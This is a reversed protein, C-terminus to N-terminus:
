VLRDIEVADGFLVGRERLFLLLLAKRGLGLLHVTGRVRRELARQLLVGPVVGRPQVLEVPREFPGLQRVLDGASEARMSEVDPHLHGALDHGVVRILVFVAPEGPLEGALAEAVAIIPYFHGGTGGGTFVVKM